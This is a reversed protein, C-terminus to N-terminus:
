GGRALWLALVGAGVVFRYVAFPLYSNTRVFRLLVAISLYGSVGAVVVALLVPGSFGGAAEFQQHKVVVKLFAAAFTIPLALLFSFRAAAERDLGLLRGATITSGSRSIGPVIACAQACGIILADRTGISAVGRARAALHDALYLVLGLVILTCAILPPSRFAEEAKHELAAGVIAGPVSGLVVLWAVRRDVDDGIRRERLSALLALGLRLLDARFFIVLAVLTGIHLAVDVALGPDEWGAVWPLLVLHASSSIPLFEGLGQVLGFAISQLTTM